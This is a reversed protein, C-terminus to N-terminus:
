YMRFVPTRVTGGDGTACIFAALPDDKLLVYHPQWPQLPDGFNIDANITNCGGDWAILEGQNLNGGLAPRVCLNIPVDPTLKIVQATVGSAGGSNALPICLPPTGFFGSPGGDTQIWRVPQGNLMQFMPLEGPRVAGLALAALGLLAAAPLVRRM